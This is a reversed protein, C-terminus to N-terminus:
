FTPPPPTQGTYDGIVYSTYPGNLQNPGNGTVNLTGYQFEMEPHIILVRNNFQDAISIAGNALLVANTPLPATNSKQDTNTFYAFVVKKDPTVEIVRSHASDTILTDGNPLRSAFAAGSLGQDYQWVISGARTVEIIRNNNEDAILIDGNPLLEASNPNNLAGPSDKPGYTWIIQKSAKDIEIVRNNGQDVVMINHNPLQIAFVPANLENAGSGSVGAQGYQWVIKGQQDVIIVRNDVCGKPLSASGAPIGTGAALTLGGSLREADNLGIITGPGPNCLTPKGSGFTWVIHGSHDMEVIRNNFQDSILINGPANFRPGSPASQTAQTADSCSSALTVLLVGVVILFLHRQVAM